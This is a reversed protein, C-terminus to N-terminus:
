ETRDSATRSEPQAAEADDAAQEQQALQFGRRATMRALYAAVPPKFRESLPAEGLQALGAGCVGDASANFLAYAICIDAVTFRGGVLYPRGDSLAATLLRLRAIFWKAYDDAAGGLGKDREFLAYRMTVTQPFTLTADAQHCWNVFAGYDRNHIRLRLPSDYLEALYLPVACSESMSARPTTDRKEQHEFWPVTGLPNRELFAAHHQRPPFKLTHLSYDVGRKLNLEKLTWLVRLSRADRSHYLSFRPM